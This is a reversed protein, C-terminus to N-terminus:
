AHMRSRTAGQNCIGIQQREILKRYRQEKEGHRRGCPQRGRLACGTLPTWKM